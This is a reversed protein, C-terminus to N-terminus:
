ETTGSGRFPPQRGFGTDLTMFLFVLLKNGGFIDVGRDLFLLALGAVARVAKDAPDIELLSEGLKTKGAMFLCFFCLPFVSMGRKFLTITNLAMVGMTGTM